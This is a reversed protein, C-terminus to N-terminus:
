LLTFLNWLAMVGAVVILTIKAIRQYVSVRTASAAVAISAVSFGVSTWTIVKASQMFDPMPALFRAVREAQSADGGSAVAVWWAFLGLPVLLLDSAVILRVTASKYPNAEQNM